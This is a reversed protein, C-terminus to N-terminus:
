IITIKDFMLESFKFLESGLWNTTAFMAFIIAILKVGFSLTQDQVQTLAQVLSVLIGIITAALVTPMSLMLVLWLSQSSYTIVEEIEM